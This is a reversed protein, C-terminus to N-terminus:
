YFNFQLPKWCSGKSLLLTETGNAKMFAVRMSFIEILFIHDGLVNLIGLSYFSLRTM